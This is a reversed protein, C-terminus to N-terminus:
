SMSGDSSADDFNDPDPSGLIADTVSESASPEHAEAEGAGPESEPVDVGDPTIVDAPMEPALAEAPVEDAPVEDAPAEAPAVPPLEMGMKAVVGRSEETLESYERLTPLERLDNLSFFDLFEKTTGYLLPRGVEERKGLIRVLNRDLLLKLTAGSDVGRIQDIEPRTIPQRYAVLALTELQARSLRVPRGQILQQVWPSFRSHTRFSYGGSINSLVVGSDSHDRILRELAQQIRGTDAVRTLQRLRAITLPKDTAFLLAEVLSTFTDEDLQAAQPRTAAEADDAVEVEADDGEGEGDGDGGVGDIDGAGEGDDEGEGKGEAAAAEVSAPESETTTDPESDDPEALISAAEKDGAMYIGTDARESASEEGEDGEGGEAGEADEDREDGGDPLVGADAAAAALAAREARGKLKRKKRM